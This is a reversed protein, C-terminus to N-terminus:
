RSAGGAVAQATLLAESKRALESRLGANANKLVTNEVMAARYRDLLDVQTSAELEAVLDEIVRRAHPELWMEDLVVQARERLPLDAIAM